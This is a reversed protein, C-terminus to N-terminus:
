AIRWCRVVGDIKRTTFKAAPNHKKAWMRASNAVRSQRISSGIKGRGMDDPAEFHDGVEMEDFPYIKKLGRSNPPVPVGSKVEFM